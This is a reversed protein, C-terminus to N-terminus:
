NIQESEATYLCALLEIYEEVIRSNFQRKFLQM